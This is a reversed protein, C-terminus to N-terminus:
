CSVYKTPGMASFVGIALAVAITRKINKNM